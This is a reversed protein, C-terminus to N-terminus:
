YFVIKDSKRQIMCKKRCKRGPGVARKRSHKRRLVWAVTVTPGPPRPQLLMEFWMKEFVLPIAVVDLMMLPGAQIKAVFALVVTGLLMEFWMKEFDLPIAVVDLMMLPAVQIKADFALTATGLLIEFELTIVAVDLMMVVVVLLMNAIVM